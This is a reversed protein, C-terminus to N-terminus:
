TDARAHHSIMARLKTLEADLTTSQVGMVSALREFRWRWDLRELSRLHNERARRPSWDRSAQAIAALGETWDPSRLDLLGDDWLLARATSSKPPVGAVIAGAALADTWRGTIYERRPHTQLSPSVLNSFSLSFKAQALIKMLAREGECPHTLLPPRGHFLLDMSKCLQATAVDDDWGSPQRGLRLLDTPRDPNASGLRLADSGWPLWEVPARLMKQWTELDEQETVFVHDFIGSLRIIRSVYEPWFSDFVWAVLRGYRSRWREMQLLASLNAPQPCILIGDLGRRKRPLLGRVKELVTLSKSRVLVLDAEFLEAALRAMYSVPQYGPGEPDVYVIEVPM